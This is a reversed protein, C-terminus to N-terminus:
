VKYKGFDDNNLNELYEAWKKGEETQDVAESKEPKDKSKVLVSEEAFIPANFRVALAMADSPRSDMVFETDGSEFYLKAFFTNNELDCIEMKKVKFATRELFNKFLDHTLPREFSMGQLAYVISSAELAGIWIFLQEDNELSRLVIIPSNTEPDLAVSAITMEHLVICRWKM